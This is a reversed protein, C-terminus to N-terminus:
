SGGIGNPLRSSPGAHPRRDAASGEPALVPLPPSERARFPPNGLPPSYAPLNGQSVVAGCRRRKSRKQRTLAEGVHKRERLPVEPGRRTCSWPREPYAHRTERHPLTHRRQTTGRRSPAPFFGRPSAKKKRKKNERSGQRRPLGHSGRPDLVRLTAGKPWLELFRRNSLAAALNSFQGM